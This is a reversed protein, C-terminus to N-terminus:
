HKLQTRLFGWAKVLSIGLILCGILPILGVSFTRLITGYDTTKMMQYLIHVKPSLFFFGSGDDYAIDHNSAHIITFDDHVRKTDSGEITIQWENDDYKHLRYTNLIFTNGSTRDVTIENNSSICYFVPNEVTGRNAIVWYELRDSPLPPITTDAYVPVSMVVLLLIVTIIALIKVKM